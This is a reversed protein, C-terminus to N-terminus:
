QNRTQKVTKICLQLYRLQVNFEINNINVSNFISMTEKETLFLPEADNITENRVFYEDLNIQTTGGGTVIPKYFAGSVCLGNMPLSYYKPSAYMTNNIPTRHMAHNASGTIATNTNITNTNVTYLNAMAWTDLTGPNLPDYIM